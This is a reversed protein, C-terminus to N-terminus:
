MNMISLIMEATEVMNNGSDMSCKQIYRHAEEETLRNREILLKKAKEITAKEQESRERPGFRNKKRRGSMQYSILHLTDLFEQVKIPMGVSVVGAGGCGGLVRESALLLMEFGAPLEEKLESFLMDAFRYGCIVIGGNMHDIHNLVQAGSACVALVEFGHRILLNRISKADEINPFAVIINSM